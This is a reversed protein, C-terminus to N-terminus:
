DWCWMKIKNSNQKNLNKMMLSAACEGILVGGFGECGIAVCRMQEKTAGEALNESQSKKFFTEKTFRQVAQKCRRSVAM